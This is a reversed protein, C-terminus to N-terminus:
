DEVVSLTSRSRHIGYSHMLLLLFLGTESLIPFISFERSAHSKSCERVVSVGWYIGIPDALRKRIRRNSEGIIVTRTRRLTWRGAGM